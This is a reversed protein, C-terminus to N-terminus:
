LDFYKVHKKTMTVLPKAKYETSVLVFHGFLNTTFIQQLGESTTGDTQKM